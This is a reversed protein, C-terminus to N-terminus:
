LGAPFFELLTERITKEIFLQRERGMRSAPAAISVAATPTGTSSPVARGVGITEAVVHNGVLSWGRERTSKLLLQMREPSMGGYGALVPANARVIAAAEKEPFSALLALGAAGVGLPQRRGVQVILVQVPYTGIHRAVCLAQSGDRVVAFAADETADSIRKLVPQLRGALSDAPEIVSMETFRPGPLYLFRNRRSVYGEAMLTLLLRYITARELKCLQVMQAVRIGEKRYKWVCNLITLGRQLSRNGDEPVHSEPDFM